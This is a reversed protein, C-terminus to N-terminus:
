KIPPLEKIKGEKHLKNTLKIHKNKFAPYHSNMATNFKEHSVSLANGFKYVTDLM